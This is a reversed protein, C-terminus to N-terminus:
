CSLSGLVFDFSAPSYRKAIRPGDGEISGDNGHVVFVANHAITVRNTVSNRMWDATMLEDLAGVDAGRGADNLNLLNGGSV